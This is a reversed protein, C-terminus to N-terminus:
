GRGSTRMNQVNARAGFIPCSTSRVVHRSAEAHEDVVELFTNKCIVSQGDETDEDDESLVEMGVGGLPEESQGATEVLVIPIGGSM